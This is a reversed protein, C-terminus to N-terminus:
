KHLTILGHKELIMVESIVLKLNKRIKNSIDFLNYNGDAYALVDMRTNLNTNNGKQSITPYLDRKGLQPECKIINKPFLGIEFADIISSIVSFSGNLGDITVVDFNDASTHYEPYKGYKTRSFGCLPLDVGPACYQREDSGRELFSYKVMNDLGILSAQLANDALNNGDRSEVHSYARDDGVCSLNFGCIVKEKLKDINKSLYTISGITEPIFVFRYTFEPNPYQSKIYQILATSLVPGSLENNAMSPHCVYTSFFIEKDSKGKIVLDALNLLGPGKKADIVVHYKGEPLKKKDNESMCFGWNDNYYSTVYPIVEPQDIQTYVHPLLKSLTINMDCPISYGLVHLNNKSFEAFRKGSEHEIYSDYINWEDPVEWDFVKTGSKYSHINLESNINKLYELTKLTGHGTLSRPLGWMDKMWKIM